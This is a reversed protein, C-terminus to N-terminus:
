KCGNRKSYADGIACLLMVGGVIPLGVGVAGMGLAFGKVFLAGVM